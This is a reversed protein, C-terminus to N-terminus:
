ILELQCTIEPKEIVNFKNLLLLTNEVFADSKIDAAQAFARGFEESYLHWHSGYIKEGKPGPNKHVGTPTIHLEILLTGNASIRAGINYKMRNIKGKFINITFINKTKSGIVNFETTEGKKPFAITEILSKKLEIILQEAEEQKLKEM